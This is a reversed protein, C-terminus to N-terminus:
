IRRRGLGQKRTIIYQGGSGTEEDKIQKKLDDVSTNTQPSKCTNGNSCHTKVLEYIRM